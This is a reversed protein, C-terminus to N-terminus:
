LGRYTWMRNIFFNWFLVFGIAILKAFNYSATYGLQESAFLHIWYPELAHHVSLLVAQNIALGILSVITFKMLQQSANRERSEPFTWRRNLFFNQTVAAVFSFGNAVALPFGFIQILVNLVTFDTISGAAGVTAFKAFRKIEKRNSLALERVQTIALENGRSITQDAQRRSKATADKTPQSMSM